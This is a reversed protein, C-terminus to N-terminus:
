KEESCDASKHGHVGCKRCLEKFSNSKVWAAYGVEQKEKGQHLKKVEKGRLRSLKKSLREWNSIERDFDLVRFIELESM